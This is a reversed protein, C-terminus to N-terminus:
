AFLRLWGLPAFNGALVIKAVSAQSSEGVREMATRSSLHRPVGPRQMRKQNLRKEACNRVTTFKKDNRKLYHHRQGTFKTTSPPAAHRTEWDPCVAVPSRMDAQIRGIEAGSSSMLELWFTLRVLALPVPLLAITVRGLIMLLIGELYMAAYRYCHM